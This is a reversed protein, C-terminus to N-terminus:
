KDAGEEKIATKEDSEEEDDEKAKPKAIFKRYGFYGLGILVLNLGIVKAAM